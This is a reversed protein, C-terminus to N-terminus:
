TPTWGEPPADPTPSSVAAPPAPAAAPSPPAPVAPTPPPGVTTPSSNGAGGNGNASTAPKTLKLVGMAALVLSEGIQDVRQLNWVAAVIVLTIGLHLIYLGISDGFHAEIFDRAGALNEQLFAPPRYLVLLLLALIVFFEAHHATHPGIGLVGSV